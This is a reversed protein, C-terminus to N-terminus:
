ADSIGSRRHVWFERISLIGSFLATMTLALMTWVFFFGGSSKATAESIGAGKMHLYPLLLGLLSGLFMIVHGSRREGLVLTGYLWVVLIGM